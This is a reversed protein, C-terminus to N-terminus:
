TAALLRDLETVAGARDAGLDLRRCGTARLMGALRALLEHDAGPLQFMSSPALAALVRTASVPESTTATAGTRAAALNPALVHGIRLSPVLSATYGPWLLCVRKHFEPHASVEPVVARDLVLQEGPDVKASAHLSHATATATDLLVYDDGLYDLGAALANLATTSKGSGGLGTLLVGVGDRGVCSAHVMDLGVTRAWWAVLVRLPAAHEWPNVVDTPGSWWAGERREDDFVSIGGSHHDYDIHLGAPAATALHGRVRQVATWDWPPPPPMSADAGGWVNFTVEAPPTASEDPRALHGFASLLPTLRKESRMEVVHGGITYAGVNSAAGRATHLVTDCWGRWAAEQM